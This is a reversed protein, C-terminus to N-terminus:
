ERIRVCRETVVWLRGELGGAALRPLLRRVLALVTAKDQTPPRLVVLGAYASPPFAAINSFDLDLTLLARGEDRCVAALDGDAAGVMREQQVTEADHGGETLVTAVEAPLNEDIKFRM